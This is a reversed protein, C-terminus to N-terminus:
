SPHQGVMIHQIQVCDPRASRPGFTCLACWHTSSFRSCDAFLENTGFWTSLNVNPPIHNHLLLKLQPLVEASTIPTLSTSHLAHLQCWSFSERPLTAPLQTEIKSGKSRKGNVVGSTNITMGFFYSPFSTMGSSEAETDASCSFVRCSM